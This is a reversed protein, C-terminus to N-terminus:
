WRAFTCRTPLGRMRSLRPVRRWGARSSPSPSTRQGRTGVAPQRPPPPPPPRRRRRLHHRSLPPDHRRNHSLCTLPCPLRASRTRLPVRCLKDCVVSTRPKSLRRWSESATCVRTRAGCRGSRVPSQLSTRHLDGPLKTPVHPLTRERKRALGIARERPNADATIPALPGCADCNIL